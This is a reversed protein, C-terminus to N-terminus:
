SASPSGEPSPAQEAKQSPKKSYMIGFPIIVCYGIVLLIPAVVLPFFGEVTGTLMSAYGAGIVALGIGLITFNERSL